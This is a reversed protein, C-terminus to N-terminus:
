EKLITVDGWSAMEQLALIHKEPTVGVCLDALVRIRNNWKLADRVTDHVCVDTAIGLVDINSDNLLLGLGTSEGAGDYFASYSDVDIKTGKRWIVDIYKQELGAVIECGWTYQECHDPWMIQSGNKTQITSFLQAGHTSAFSVHGKPHFDQTAIVLDYSNTMIWHNIKPTLHEGGPCYLTGKPNAFSNQFDICLLCNM